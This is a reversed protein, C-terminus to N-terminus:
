LSICGSIKVGKSEAWRTLADRDVNLIQGKFLLNTFFEPDLNRHTFHRIRGDRKDHWMMHFHFIGHWIPILTIDRWNRFKRKLAEIMCNSVFIPQVDSTM